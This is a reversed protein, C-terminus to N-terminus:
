ITVAQFSISLFHFLAKDANLHPEKPDSFYIRLKVEAVFTFHMTVLLFHLFIVEGPM